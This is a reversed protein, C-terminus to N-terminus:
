KTQPLNNSKKLISAEQIYTTRTIKLLKQSKTLGFSIPDLRLRVWVLRFIACIETKM